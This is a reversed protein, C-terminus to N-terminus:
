LYKLLADQWPTGVTWEVLWGMNNTFMLLGLAILIIGGVISLWHAARDMSSVAAQAREIILALVLFPVALGLSFIALLLAGQGATASVSAVFLISGSCLPGICPSWGLAFLIGILFSSEPRGLTLFSPLRPHFESSLFPIRFLGLM